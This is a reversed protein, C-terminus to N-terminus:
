DVWFAIRSRMKSFFTLTIAWGSLAMFSTVLWSIDSPAQGLLPSRVIELLYALPNYKLVGPNQEILRPMWSIPTIFFAIQVCSNIIPIIDRFRASIIATLFSIWYLNMTLLIFGPIVYLIKLGPNLQFYVCILLYVVFNHLLIVSQKILHKFIYIHYPLNIQKIFPASIKFIEAGEVISASIYTWFLFGAAFFPIYEDLSQHFLRSFVIGMMMIFIFMSLSLWWPGLVSRRYRQKVEVVGLHFWVRYQLLAKKLDQLALHLLKM